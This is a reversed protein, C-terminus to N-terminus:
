LSRLRRLHVVLSPQQIRKLTTIVYSLATYGDCGHALLLSVLAPRLYCPDVSTSLSSFRAADDPELERGSISHVLRADGALLWASLQPHKTNSAVLAAVLMDLRVDLDVSLAGFNLIGYQRHCSALFVSDTLLTFDCDDVVSQQEAWRGVCQEVCFLSQLVRDSSTM